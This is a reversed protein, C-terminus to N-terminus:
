PSIRGVPSSGVAKPAQKRRAFNLAANRVATKLYDRFRGRDQNARVFRHRCVRLFFDQAVDEADHRNKLLALLYAQVAAGYRRVFEGSDHITEWETSIEDLRVTGSEM